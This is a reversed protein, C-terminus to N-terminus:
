SASMREVYSSMLRTAQAFDEFEMAEHPNHSGNENRVFIMSCPIGQTAFVVCDHGGGSAMQMHPVGMETATEALESIMQPDMKAPLALSEEGFEFTVGVNTEIRSAEQHALDAMGSMADMEVSRFDLVFTTEGSVRSPGHMEANTNLEGMTFVLDQGDAERRLWDEGLCHALQVTAAVADRRSSRPEAGSHAYEGIARMFRYRLCGRIGTVIGVPLNESVLVPGQEIHLEIYGRINEPKLYAQGNRVADVDCGAERMYEALPRGDDSRPVDLDSTPLIGFAAHSGGYAVNFWAAEEMRFAVVTIDFDPTVGAQKMGVIVSIGAIVGAAGDYNGGQPVSDLHSGIVLAPEDRDRGPLTVYLNRAADEAVELGADRATRAVLAHAYEEGKGYTDRWIGVTGCTNKDLDDFLSRALKLDPQM